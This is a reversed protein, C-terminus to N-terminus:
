RNFRGHQLFAMVQDITASSRMILTHGCRVVMFDQMEELRASQVSVKGDNPGRFLSSFWPDSSVDGAIVGTECGIRGLQNPLSAAETGLHLAAPGFLRRFLRFKKLCDVVESGHNPPSIMVVRSGTPLHHNQLYFRVLIAGMSHTVVHIRHAEHTECHIVAPILYGNVLEHMSRRTSPYDRNLVSYGLSELKRALRNMSFRTRGLGHLLIVFEGNTPEKMKNGSAPTYTSIIQPSVQKHSKRITARFCGCTPIRIAPM